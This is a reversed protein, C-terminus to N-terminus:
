LTTYCIAGEEYLLNTIQERQEYEEPFVNRRKWLGPMGSDTHQSVRWERGARSLQTWTPKLSPLLKSIHLSSRPQNGLLAFSHRTTALWEWEGVWGLPFNLPYEGYIHTKNTTRTSFTGVPWIAFWFRERWHYCDVRQCREITGTLCLLLCLWQARDSPSM